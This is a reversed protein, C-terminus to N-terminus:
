RAAAPRPRSQPAIAARDAASLEYADAVADDLAADRAPDLEALQATVLAAVHARLDPPPTAVPLQRLYALKPRVAGNLAPPFRRQAYWRYLSSNLLALLFPDQSPLIWVTTDPVLQGSPDLCCAPQTQIDQYFLRPARARALPVVPDQLEYWRYSGPKRGAWAGRHSRPRPELAARFRALHARVRPLQALSTGHDVLLVFRDVATPRWRRVDRGKVLPRILAAAAPEADLLRARTEGDIVFARNCGTIIGRSPLAALTDGLAPWRRALRDILAGDRPHDIHWPEAVWRARAHPVGAVALARAVPTADAVRSARIADTRAGITGWAICPFADADGFLPLARAFDVLGEVSRQKALFARLPRGYAATLWKDPVIVCYRGGRRLVRHALEIFYVYLDAVGDYTAYGRLAAKGAGLREQRVYPPNAVVADLERPWDLALADGVRLREGLSPVPAGVFREVAARAAAVARPDVDAGVLCHEAVLRRAQRPSGRMAEAIVRVIEVLFAGEGIAPDCVRLALLERRSKGAVLPALACRVMPECVERPTYVVGPIRTAVM